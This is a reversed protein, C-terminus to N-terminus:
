WRPCGSPTMTGLDAKRAVVRRLPVGLEKGVWGGGVRIAAALQAPDEHPLYLSRVLAHGGEATDVRYVFRCREDSVLELGSRELEPGLDQMAVDNPYSLRSRRLAHLLWGYRWVDSLDV